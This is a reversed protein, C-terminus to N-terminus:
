KKIESYLKNLKNYNGKLQGINQILNLYPNINTKLTLKNLYKNKMIEMFKSIDKLYSLENGIINEDSLDYEKILIKTLIKSDIKTTKFLKHNKIIISVYRKLTDDKIKKKEINTEKIDETKSSLIKKAEEIKKKEKERYNKMYNANKERYISTDRYKKMREKIKQKKANDKDILEQALEKNM